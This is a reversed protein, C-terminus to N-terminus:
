ATTRADRRGATGAGAPVRRREPSPRAGGEESVGGGGQGLDGEGSGMARVGPHHKRAERLPLWTLVPTGPEGGANRWGEWWPQYGEHAWRAKFWRSVGGWRGTEELIEEM